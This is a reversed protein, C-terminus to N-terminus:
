GHQQGTHGQSTTRGHQVNHRQLRHRTASRLTELAPTSRRCFPTRTSTMAAVWSVNLAVCVTAVDDDAVSGHHRCVHALYTPAVLLAQGGGIGRLPM